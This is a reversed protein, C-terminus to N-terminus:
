NTTSGCIVNFLSSSSRSATSLGRISVAVYDMHPLTNHTRSPSHDIAGEGDRRRPLRRDFPGTSLGRQGDSHLVSCVTALESCSFNPAQLTPTARRPPYEAAMRSSGDCQTSFPLQLLCTRLASIKNKKKKKKITCFLVKTTATIHDYTRTDTGNEGKSDTTNITFGKMAAM